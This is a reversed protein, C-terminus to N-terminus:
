GGGEGAFGPSPRFKQFRPLLESGVRRRYGTSARGIDAVADAPRGMDTVKPRFDAPRSRPWPKDSGPLNAFKVRALATMDSTRTFALWKETDYPM